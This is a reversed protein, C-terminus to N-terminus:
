KNYYGDIIDRTNQEIDENMKIHVDCIEKYIPMREDYLKRLKQRDNSLPRDPTAPIKDIDRDIFIVKGNQKLHFVNEGELVAGGGTAIVKGSEKSLETIINKEIERFGKEGYKEFIEPINGYKNVIQKDSDIFERSLAKAVAKGNTTKGSAPMGVLVINQKQMLIENYIRDIESKDISKSMFHEAAFVAQAVLMYLGGEAKIGKQKAKLVLRSRLPNYVADIVGCLKSFKDIDVAESQIDPYMGCPTTNIIVDIDESIKYLNDYTITDESEKRSVRYITKANMSKCVAFATKSTGGSGLIAVTKNCIEIGVRKILASMGAFDTNYGYLKGDQNVITNVAGISLAISDTYDLGSIVDQKYPITVNIAKFQRKKLFDPLAEPELEFLQYDYSELMNHIIKSFSHSLKRGICGYQM